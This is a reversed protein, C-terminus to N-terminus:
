DEAPTILPLTFYFCSGDNLREYGVTGQLKEIIEKCIALGLGTGGQERVTPNDAQAFRQFLMPEFAPPVGKGHDIVCVKITQEQQELRIHVTSTASSFKIANSLLNIVVQRLRSEDALVWLSNASSDKLEITRHLGHLQAICQLLLAKIDVPRVNFRMHGSSLKEFDLLDNVLQHLQKCSQQALHLMKHQKETLEGLAGGLALSLSGNIATLPTRLEHSVTAVFDNQLREVRKRETIDRLVFLRQAQQLPLETHSLQLPFSQQDARQGLCEIEVQVPQAPDYIKASDESPDLLCTWHKGTLSNAPYAFIRYCARNATKIIGRADVTIIGDFVNDHISRLTKKKDGLAKASQKLRQMSFFIRWQLLLMIMGASYLMGRLGSVRQESLEAAPIAMQWKAGRISVNLIPNKSNFLANDGFFSETFRQDPLKSRLAIPLALQTSLEALRQWIPEIDIVTSVIGWYEGNPMFIPYRYIFSIGGQVLHIPGTLKANRDAIISAIAPWQETLDPYYLNLAQENGALPFIYSIRNAPAIGINRIYPAQKVLGPLLVDLENNSIKGDMAVIYSALGITLYSSINLESELQSRLQEATNLRQQLKEARLRHQENNLFWEVGLLFLLCSAVLALWQWLQLSSRYNLM